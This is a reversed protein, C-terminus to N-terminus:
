LGPAKEQVCARDFRVAHDSNIHINIGFSIQMNIGDYQPLYPMVKLDPTQWAIAIFFPM